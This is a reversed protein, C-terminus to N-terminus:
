ELVVARAHRIKEGQVLRLMYVGPRIRAGNGLHVAHQGPGLSGVDRAQVVRGALDLMELSAPETSALSFHITLERGTAPNPRPGALSLAVGIPVDVSV